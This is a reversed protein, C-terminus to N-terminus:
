LNSIQRMIIKWKIYLVMFFNCYMYYFLMWYELDKLVNMHLVHM